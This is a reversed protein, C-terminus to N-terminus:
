ALMQAVQGNSGSSWGQIGFYITSMKFSTSALPSIYLCFSSTVIFIKCVIRQQLHNTVLTVDM